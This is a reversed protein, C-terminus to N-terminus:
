LDKRKNENLFDQTEMVITKTCDALNNGYLNITLLKSFSKLVFDVEEPEEYYEYAMVESDTLDEVLRAFFEMSASRAHNWSNDIYLEFKKEIMESIRM